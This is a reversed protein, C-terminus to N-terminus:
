NLTTSSFDSPMNLNLICAANAVMEISFSSKVQKCPFKCKFLKILKKIDMKKYRKNHLCLFQPLIYLINIGEILLCKM